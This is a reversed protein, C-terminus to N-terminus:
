DFSRHRKQRGTRLSVVRDQNVIGESASRHQCDCQCEIKNRGSTQDQGLEVPLFIMVIRNNM